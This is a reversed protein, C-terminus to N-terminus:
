RPLRKSFKSLVFRMCRHAPDVPECYLMPCGGVICEIGADKCHRIAEPSASSPGISGHFWLQHIGRAECEKAINLAARSPTAAFVADIKEPLSSINPFCPQGEVTTARPNVAFVEFGANSLKRYVANGPQKGDRSVGAIAVRKNDLFNAVAVPVRTM